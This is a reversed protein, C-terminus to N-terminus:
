SGAHCSYNKCTLKRIRKEDSNYYWDIVLSVVQNYNKVGKEINNAKLYIDNAATQMKSFNQKGTGSLIETQIPFGSYM